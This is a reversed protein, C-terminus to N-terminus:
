PKKDPTIIIVDTIQPNHSSVVEKIADRYRSDITKKANASITALVIANDVFCVPELKDIWVEFSIAQISISLDNKADEWFEEINIMFVIIGFDVVKELM